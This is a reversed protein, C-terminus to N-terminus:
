NKVNKLLILALVEMLFLSPAAINKRRTPKPNDILETHIMQSQILENLLINSVPFNTFSPTEIKGEKDVVYVIIM